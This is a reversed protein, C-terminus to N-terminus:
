VPEEPAVVRQKFSTAIDFFDPRGTLSYALDKTFLMTSAYLYDQNLLAHEYTLPDKEYNAFVTSNVYGGIMPLVFFASLDVFTATLSTWSPSIFINIIDTLLVSILNRGVIPELDGNDNTQQLRRREAQFDTLLTAQAAALLCVSFIAKM